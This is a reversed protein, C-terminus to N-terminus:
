YINGIINFTSPPNFAARTKSLYRPLFMAMKVMGSVGRAICHIQSFISISSTTRIPLMRMKTSLEHSFFILLFTELVLPKPILILLDRYHFPLAKHPISSGIRTPFARQRYHIAKKLSFSKIIINRCLNENLLKKSSPKQHILRYHSESPFPSFKRHCISGSGTSPHYRSPTILQEAGKSKHRQLSNFKMSKHRESKIHAM